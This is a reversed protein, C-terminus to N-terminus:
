FSVNFGASLTRPQPQVAYDIGLQSNKVSQNQAEPDYGSYHTWLALNQGSIFVKASQIHLRKLFTAPLNYNLTINKLRIFSGDEVWRSSMEGNTLSNTVVPDNFMPKPVDTTTNTPTWYQLTKVDGNNYGAMRELIARTQNYVQNGYSFYLFVSLDFGKYSFTNTFGGTFKPLANGIIVRDAANIKGDGNTDQYVMNGTTPNVGSSKYGFFSGVAEGVRYISTPLTTGYLGPLSETFDSSTPDGIVLQPLDTIKTRNFSMNYNTSWRFKGRINDTSLAIDIGKNQLKGINAGNTRAFGSTYPLDLKFILRNTQKLYADVTLNVRSDFLSLDLGLNTQTTAEWSLDKNSLASAAIGAETGYNVATAYTALSPFDNGLGEQSGSTGISARLKLDSVAHQNKMFEENSIRWGGSITPFFGYKQNAGFRSSGDIRGALQVLYRDKFSYNVRGFYSLLGSKSRYDSAETRNTFGTVAEILDTASTNGAAGIRRISTVQTSEGIVGSLVHGGSLKPTYTLTNENLWLMQTFFDAAGTAASQNNVQTSQYRDDQIGQNDMGFSTKFKLNPLISYEGYINGVYRNVISVFRLENALMVPNTARRNADYYYSGDANYVPYNPNYILANALVSQGSFSNDIRHNLSYTGNMSFGIRLNSTAKYDLNIRGNIRSFHQQGVITGTQDLYGVSLYHSIDKTGGSVSMNYESIPASKFIADQWNTNIGTKTITPDVALGANAREQTILDVYQDGNLLPLRKTIESVGTYGNFNFRARGEKGKKTTILIVGAAARSGYIATAAADKLVDISEIDNPNIDNTATIRQGDGGLPSVGAPINNMPVGDIVYLPRNEGFLSGNGRIRIYTEDGPAGSNQVVQVGAVKGQIAADLNTVPVRAIEEGKVSAISSTLNKRIQSGYGVVVVENLSSSTESLEVTLTTRNGVAVEQRGFGVMSFVLVDNANNLKISFQGEKNTTTARTTGKVTVTVGPMPEGKSTVTGTVVQDQRYLQHSRVAASAMAPVTTMGLALCSIVAPVTCIRLTCQRYKAYQLLLKM